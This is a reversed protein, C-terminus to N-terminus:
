VTLKVIYSTGIYSIDVQQLKWYNKSTRKEFKPPNESDYVYETVIDIAEKLPINTFLSLVDYSVLINRSNFVFSKITEIFGKTNLMYNNPICPKIISDLYKPINYEATSLMSVVPRLPQGEKHVKYVFECARTVLANGIYTFGYSM